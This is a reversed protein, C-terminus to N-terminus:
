WCKRIYSLSISLERTTGKLIVQKIWDILRATTNTTTATICNFSLFDVIQQHAGVEIWHCTTLSKKENENKNEKQRENSLYSTTQRDISRVHSRRHVIPNLLCFTSVLVFFSLLQCRSPRSLQWYPMSKTPSNISTNITFTFRCM